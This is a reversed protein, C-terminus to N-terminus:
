FEVTTQFKFEMTNLHCAIGPKQRIPLQILLQSQSCHCTFLQDFRALTLVRLVRHSGKQTLSNISSNGTILVGVIRLTQSNIGGHPM